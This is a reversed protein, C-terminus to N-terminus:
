LMEICAYMMARNKQQLIQPSHFSFGWLLRNSVQVLQLISVPYSGLFDWLDEEWLDYLATITDRWFISSCKLRTKYTKWLCLEPNLYHPIQSMAYLQLFHLFTQIVRKRDLELQRRVLHEHVVYTGLPVFKALDHHTRPFFSHSNSM